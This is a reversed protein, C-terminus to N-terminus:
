TRQFVLTLIGDVFNNAVTQQAYSVVVANGASLSANTVTLATATNAALTSALNDSNFAIAATGNVSVNVFITDAAANDIANTSSLYAKYLKASYPLTFTVSSNAAGVAANGDNGNPLKINVIVDNLSDVTDSTDTTNAGATHFLQKFKAQINTTTSM